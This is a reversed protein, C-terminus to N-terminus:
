EVVELADWPVDFVNEQNAIKVHTKASAAPLHGARSNWARCHTGPQVNKFVRTFKFLSRTYKEQLEKLGLCEGRTGAKNGELIEPLTLDPHDTLSKDLKALRTPLSVLVSQGYKKNLYNPLEELTLDWSLPTKLKLSWELIRGNPLKILPHKTNMM